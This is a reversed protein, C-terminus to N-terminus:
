WFPHSVSNHAPRKVEESPLIKKAQEPLVLENYFFVWIHKLSSLVFGKM